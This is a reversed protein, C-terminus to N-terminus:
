YLIGGMVALLEGSEIVGHMNFLIQKRNTDNGVYVNLNHWEFKCGKSPSPLASQHRLLMDSAITRLQPTKSQANHSQSPSNIDDISHTLPVTVFADANHSFQSEEVSLMDQSNGAM